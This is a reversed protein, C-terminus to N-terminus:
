APYTIPKEEWFVQLIIGILLASPAFLGLVPLHVEGIIGCAGLSIHQYSAHGLPGGVLDLVVLGSTYSFLGGLVLTWVARWIPVCKPMEPTRILKKSVELRYLYVFSLLLIAANFAYIALGSIPKGDSFQYPVQWLEATLLLPLYGVGIAAWLRPLLLDFVTRWLLGIAATALLLVYMTGLGIQLLTAYGLLWVYLVTLIAIPALSILGVGSWWHKTSQNFWSQARQWALGAAGWWDFRGLFWGAILRDLVRRGVKDNLFFPLLPANSSQDGRLLNHVECEISELGHDRKFMFHNEEDICFNHWDRLALQFNRDEGPSLAGDKGRYLHAMVDYRMKLLRTRALRCGWGEQHLGYRDLYFLFLSALWYRAKHQEESILKATADSIHQHINKLIALDDRDERPDDRGTLQFFKELVQTNFDILDNFPISGSLKSLNVKVTDRCVEILM